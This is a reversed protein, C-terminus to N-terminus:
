VEKREKDLAALNIASMNKVQEYILDLQKLSPIYQLKIGEMCIHFGCARLEDEILGVSQGGWGYSGFAFAEREGPSLGKLYCLFSAVTPMMQNNLTPSGVAIYRSTLLAPMINSNHNEKLDYLKVPVKSDGFAEAITKAMTETSNWMSDYVIVAGAAPNNASWLEYASLIEPIHSRWLIGHSPAILQIDLEKVTRWALAAQKGYCMIINAYYKKAEELAVALDTEDDFRESTALHQGFADNSFLIKEEPCYTVMNDPWHLMPTSIFSLTRKGLSVTDGNKVPVYGYDGYHATLGKVGTAGSTYIQAKPCLRKVAPLAGSHDMEVHNSVIIDIKEPPIVSSIRSLMEGAFAPKVTDILAVKEDIILYAGYTSGRETLYGHFNRVNWDIAGVYYIGEKIKVGNM